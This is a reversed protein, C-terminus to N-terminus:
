YSCFSTLKYHQGQYLVNNLSKDLSTCKSDNFVVRAKTIIKDAKMIGYHPLYFSLYRGKSIKECPGMEETHNFDTYEGIVNDYNLESEKVLRKEM